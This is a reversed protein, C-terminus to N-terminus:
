AAGGVAGAGRGLYASPTTLRRWDSVIDKWDTFSLKGRLVQVLLALGGVVAVRRPYASRYLGAMEDIFLKAELRTPMVPHFLDFKDYDLETEYSLREDFLRTGPLPTLVTFLPMTLGLSKVYDRLLAFDKREAGTDMIFSTVASVDLSKLLELARENNELSNKKGVSDLEDQTVKELGLFVGRLGIDAWAEMLAPNRAVVDTRTQLLYRKRVGDRKLSFAIAAARKVGAFFDDDVFFVEDTEAAEIERVVSEPSKMRVKGRYFVWVSCFNCRFPCGRSTEISTVNHETFLRYRNFYPKSITRDPPPLSNLDGILPRNPTLYQGARGNVALGAVSSIEGGEELCRCLDIVTQEGEGIVVADISPLLFDIPRLSPHHGGVFIFTEPSISRVVEAIRVAPKYDMTFTSTIGCAGVNRGELRGRLEDESAYRMDLFEVDALPKLVSALSELGLPEVAGFPRAFRNPSIGPQVLLVQM